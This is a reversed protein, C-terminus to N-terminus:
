HTLSSLLEGTTILHIELPTGITLYHLLLFLFVRKAVEIEELQENNVRVRAKIDEHFSKILNVVNEPIGLKQIPSDVINSTSLTMHWVYIWLHLVSIVINHEIAKEILMFIM